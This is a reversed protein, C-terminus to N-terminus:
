FQRGSEAAVFSIAGLVDDRVRVPAAMYSRIGLARFLALDHPNRAARELVADTVDSMLESTGTRVVKWPGVSAVPDPPYREQLEHAVRLKEPDVHAVALRRLTGSTDLVDVACWDAVYPVALEALSALTREYELSSGLVRGAEALFTSRADAARRAAEVRRQETVDRTAEVVYERGDGAVLALRAEVLLRRGDKTAHSLEGQWRAQRHLTAMFSDVQERPTGLLDHSSRGLAEAATWGYQEEAGRNWFTIGAEANWAFIAEHAAEFLMSHLRLTQESRRSETIDHAITSVGIIAGSADRIPSVTVVVRIRLGDKRVRETEHPAIREGRGVRDLITNLEARREPPIIIDISRGIAEAATFGYLWEAAPNWSTITGDLTKSLIADDSWDVIAALEGQLRRRETEHEELTAVALTVAGDLADQVMLEGALLDGVRGSREWLARGIEQRLLRFEALVEAPTLGQTFRERAHARAADSVHRHELAQAPDSGPRASRELCEILADFLHPIHDAVARNPHSAHFPQQRAAELWRKLIDHRASRLTAAVPGLEADQAFVEVRTEVQTTVAQQARSRATQGSSGGKNESM